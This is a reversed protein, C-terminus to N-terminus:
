DLYTSELPQIISFDEAEQCALETFCSCDETIRIAYEPLPIAVCSRYHQFAALHVNRRLTTYQNYYWCARDCTRLNSPRLSLSAKYSHMRLLGDLVLDAQTTRPLHWGILLGLVGAVITMFLTIWAFAFSSPFKINHGQIIREEPLVKDHNEQPDQSHLLAYSKRTSPFFPIHM